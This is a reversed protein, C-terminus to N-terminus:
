LKKALISFQHNNKKTPNVSFTRAEDGVRVTVYEQKDTHGLLFGNQLQIGAPLNGAVAAADSTILFGFLEDSKVEFEHQNIFNWLPMIIEKRTNIHIGALKAAYYDGLVFSNYQLQSTIVKIPNILSYWAIDEVHHKFYYNGQQDKSSIATVNDIMSPFNKQDSINNFSCYLQDKPFACLLESVKTSVSQAGFPMFIPNDCSHLLKGLITYLSTESFDTPIFKIPIDYQTFSLSTFYSHSHQATYTTSYPAIRSM